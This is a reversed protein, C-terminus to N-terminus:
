RPEFARWTKGRDTSTAVKQATPSELQIGYLLQGDGALDDMRDPVGNLLKARGASIGYLSPSPDSIAQGLMVASGDDFAVPGGGRAWPKNAVTTWHAGRDTSIRLLGIAELTAGDVWSSAVVTRGNPSVAIEAAPNGPDLLAKGWTRGGDDTWAIDGRSGSNSKGTVVWWRGTNDRVPSRADELGSPQLKRLTSDQLNLVRLEGNGGLRTTLIEDPGFTDTPDAYHLVSQILQRGDYRFLVTKPWTPDTPTLVDGSPGAVAIPEVGVRLATFRLSGSPSALSLGNRSVAAGYRCPTSKCDAWAASWDGATVM